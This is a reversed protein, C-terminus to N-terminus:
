PYPLQQSHRAALLASMVGVENGQDRIMALTTRQVPASLGARFADQAMVTGGTHHRIMLQLFLAEADVGRAQALRAIETTSAM